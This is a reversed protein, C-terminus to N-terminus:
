VTYDTELEIQEYVAMTSPNFAKLIFKGEFEMDMKLTIKQENDPTMMITGTATNVLGGTKAEGVVEGKKNHAELLVEVQADVSFMDETQLTLAVVPMRTTIRKAGNKYNIAVKFKEVSVQSDKSGDLKVTIVPVVCEQLSAGGHYYLMGSKYTAFSLPGAVQKFDGKIGAQESSLRYHHLDSDGEGLVCREHIVKWDGQPKNCTDGAEAHTNM